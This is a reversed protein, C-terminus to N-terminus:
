FCNCQRVYSSMSIAVKFMKKNITRKVLVSCYMFFPVRFINGRSTSWSTTTCEEKGKLYLGVNFKSGLNLAALPLFKKHFHWKKITPSKCLANHTSHIYQQQVCEASAKNVRSSSVLLINSRTNKQSEGAKMKNYNNSSGMM